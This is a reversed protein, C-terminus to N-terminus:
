KLLYEALELDFADTIKVNRSSTELVLVPQKYYELISADDTFHLKDQRAREHM